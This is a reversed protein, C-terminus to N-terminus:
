FIGIFAIWYCPSTYFLHLSSLHFYAFYFLSGFSGRSRIDHFGLVSGGAFCVFLPGPHDLFLTWSQVVNQGQAGSSCISQTQKRTRKVATAKKGVHPTWITQYVHYMDKFSGLCQMFLFTPSSNHSGNGDRVVLLTETADHCAKAKYIMYIHSDLAQVLPFM